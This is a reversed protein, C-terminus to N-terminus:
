ARTNLTEYDSKSNPPKILTHYATLLKDKLQKDMRYAYAYILATM